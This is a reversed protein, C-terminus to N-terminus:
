LWEIKFRLTGRHTRGRSFTFYAALGEMRAYIPDSCQHAWAYRLTALARVVEATGDELVATYRYGALVPPLGALKRIRPVHMVREGLVGIVVSSASEM